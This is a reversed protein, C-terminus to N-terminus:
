LTITDLDDPVLINGQYVTQGEATYLQRRHDINKDETHYLVLNPINMSAAIECADKVTSHHKEYPKFLEAESSLCFAEHLLWKSGEVYSYEYDNYPEDGCCTLREHNGIDMCFGFQKAKTSHIDFFTVSTGIIQRTESDTVQVLHIRKGIQAYEKKQLLNDAMIDLLNIVEDHGYIYLEDQYKGQNIGQAIMRIMWIVGVIHDLHKHTIFIQHITRWDIDAKELQRLLTNGGGGDVLLYQNNNEIIFCTNYCKTVTAHGTGLMTIKM